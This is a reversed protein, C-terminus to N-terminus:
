NSSPPHGTDQAAPDVDFSLLAAGTKGEGPSVAVFLRGLPPVLIATKAGHATPVPDLATYHDADDQRVVGMFDDGALYIRHNARDYIAENTRQPVPLSALMRGDHADLVLLRYPKRTVVFLRANAEDFAMAANASGQPLPLSQLLVLTNKNFVDIRDRATVNVYLRAGKEEVALAEVKSSEIRAEGDKHGTRPNVRALWSDELKGNDGGTVVYMKGTSEDFGMSDAGPALPITAIRRGTSMDFVKTGGHGSDTVVLRGSSPLYLPAHPVEVGRLTSLHAGNALDFVELTGHDEAALFLRNGRADFAFHDFDGTYGPLETRGHPHLVAVHTAVHAEAAHAEAACLGLSLVACILRPLARLTM